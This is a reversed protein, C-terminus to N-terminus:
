IMPKSEDKVSWIPIFEVSVTLGVCLVFKSMPFAENGRKRATNEPRVPMVFGDNQHNGKFSEAFFTEDTEVIGFVIDNSLHNMVVNLIKHRWRFATKTSIELEIACKRIPSGNLM